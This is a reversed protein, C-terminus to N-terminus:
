DNGSFRLILLFPELYRRIGKSEHDRSRSIQCDNASNERDDSHDDSNKASSLTV